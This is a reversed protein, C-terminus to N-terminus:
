PGSSPLSDAGSEGSVRTPGVPAKFTWTRNALFTAVTVPPVGVIYAEVRDLGAVRVFLLVLLTLTVAGLAGFVVYLIRSRRSDPADFTWRRNLIYGNVVGVAFAIPAAVLYPTSVALLLRYAVFSLTTNALGVVLFRVFQRYPDSQSRPV